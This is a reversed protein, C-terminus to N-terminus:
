KGTIEKTLVPEVGLDSGRPVIVYENNDPYQIWFFMDNKYDKIEKKVNGKDDFIIMIGKVKFWITDENEKDKYAELTGKIGILGSLKDPTDANIDKPPELIVNLYEIEKGNITVEAGYENVWKGKLVTWIDPIGQNNSDKAMAATRLILIFLIAATIILKKM